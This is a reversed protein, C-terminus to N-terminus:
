DPKAHEVECENFWTKKYVVLRQQLPSDPEIRKKAEQLALYARKPQQDLWFCEASFVYPEAHSKLQAAQAYAKIALWYASKMQHTAGLGMWFRVDKPAKQTLHIFLAEAEDYKGGQYFTFATSYLGEMM